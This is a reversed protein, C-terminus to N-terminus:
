LSLLLKNSTPRVFIVTRSNVVSLKLKTTRSADQTSSLMHEPQEYIISINDLFGVIIPMNEKVLNTDNSYMVKDSAKYDKGSNKRSPWKIM